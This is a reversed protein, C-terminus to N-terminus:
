RSLEDSEAEFPAADRSPPRCLQHAAASRDPPRHAANFAPYRAAVGRMSRTADGHCRRVIQGRRNQSATGCAEGDAGALMGPNSMDDRQMAQTEPTMFDFGSKRAEQATGPPVAAASLLIILLGAVLRHLVAIM